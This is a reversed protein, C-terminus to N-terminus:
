PDTFDFKMLVLEEIICRDSIEKNKMIQEKALKNIEERKAIVEETIYRVIVDTM